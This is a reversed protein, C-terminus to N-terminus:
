NHHEILFHYVLFSCIAFVVSVRFRMPVGNILFDSITYQHTLVCFMEITATVLFLTILTYKLM